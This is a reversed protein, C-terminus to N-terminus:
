WGAPVVPPNMRPMRTLCEIRGRKPTMFAYATSSARFCHPM